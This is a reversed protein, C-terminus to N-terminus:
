YISETCVINRDFLYIHGLKLDFMEKKNNM